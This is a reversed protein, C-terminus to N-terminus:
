AALSIKGTALEFLRLNILALKSLDDRLRAHHAGICLVTNYVFASVYNFAEVQREQLAKIFVFANGQVKRLLELQDEPTAIPQKLLRNFEAACEELLSIAMLLDSQPLDLKPLM